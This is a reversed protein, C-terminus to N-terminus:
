QMSVTEGTRRVSETFGPQVGGTLSGPFTMAGTFEPYKLRILTRPRQRDQRRPLTFCCATLTARVQLGDAMEGLVVAEM